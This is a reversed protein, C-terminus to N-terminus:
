LALPRRGKRSEEGVWRLGALFSEVGARCQDRRLYGRASRAVPEAGGPRTSRVPLYATWIWLRGEGQGLTCRLAAREILLERVADALERDDRYSRVGVGLQRGNAARLAWGVCGNSRVTLLKPGRAEAPM